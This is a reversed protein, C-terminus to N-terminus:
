SMETMKLSNEPTGQHYFQIVWMNINCYTDLNIKLIFVPILRLVNPLGIYIKKFKQCRPIKLDNEPTNRDYFPIIWIDLNIIDM